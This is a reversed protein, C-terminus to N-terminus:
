ANSLGYVGLKRPNVVACIRGDGVVVSSAQGSWVSRIAAGSGANLAEGDGLYLVGGAFAGISQAAATTRSWLQADTSLSYACVQKTSTGCTAYVRSGDVALVQKAGVVTKRTAGTAPNLDSVTGTSGDRVFVHKGASTARDGAQPLWSGPKSWVAAGTALNSAMLHQNGSSDCFPYIVVGGVVAVQAAGCLDTGKDWVQHGASATRVSIVQGGGASAGIAVLYGSATVMNSLAGRFTDSTGTQWVPAGTSIQFAALLGNPDSVSDCGVGAVIVLNGAVAISRYVTSFGTDPAVRWAVHGTAAAAKQLYGNYLAFSYGGSLMPTVVGEAGECAADPNTAATISRRLAVGSITSTTLTTEALNARSNAANYNSEIWPSNAPPPAAVAFAATAILAGAAVTAGLLLSATRGLNRAVSSM